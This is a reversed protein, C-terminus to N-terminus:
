ILVDMIWCSRPQLIMQMFFKFFSCNNTNVSLKYDLLKNGTSWIWANICIGAFVHWMHWYPANPSVEKRFKRIGKVHGVLNLISFIVSAPEQIGFVRIFPWKGHFQPIKWGRDAFKEVTRWMCEYECDCSEAKKSTCNEKICRRICNNFYPSRDGVSGSCCTLYFSLVVFILSIKLIADLNRMNKM